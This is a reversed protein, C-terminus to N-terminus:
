KPALERLLIQHHGKMIVLIQEFSTLIDEAADIEQGAQKLRAILSIQKSIRDKAEKLHRRSLALHQAHLDRDM